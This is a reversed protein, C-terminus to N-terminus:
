KHYCINTNHLKVKKETVIKTKEMTIYIYIEQSSTYMIGGGWM